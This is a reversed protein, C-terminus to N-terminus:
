TSSNNAFGVGGYSYGSLAVPPNSLGRKEKVRSLPSQNQSLPQDKPKRLGALGKTTSGIASVSNGSDVFDPKKSKVLAAYSSITPQKFNAGGPMYSSFNIPGSTQKMSDTMQKMLAFPDDGSGM